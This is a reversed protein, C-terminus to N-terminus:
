PHRDAHRAILHDRRQQFFAIDSEVAERTFLEPEDRLATEGMESWFATAPVEAAGEPLFKAVEAAADRACEWGVVVSESLAADGPDERHRLDDRMARQAYGAGAVRWQGADILESPGEGFRLRERRAQFESEFPVFVDFALRLGIDRGDFRLKWAGAVETLKTHAAYDRVPELADGRETAVATLDVFLYAETLTRAHLSAM